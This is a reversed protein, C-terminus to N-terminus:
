VQTSTCSTAEFKLNRVLLNQLIQWNFLNNQASFKHRLYYAATQAAARV